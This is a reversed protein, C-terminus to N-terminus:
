FKSWLTKSWFHLLGLQYWFRSSMTWVSIPNNISFKPEVLIGVKALVVFNIFILWIRSGSYRPALEGAISDITSPFDNTPLLVWRSVDMPMKKRKMSVIDLSFSRPFPMLSDINCKLLLKNEVDLSFSHLFPMVLIIDRKLLLVNKFDLSFTCHTVRILIWSNIGCKTFLMAIKSFLEIPGGLIFTLGEGVDCGKCKIITM